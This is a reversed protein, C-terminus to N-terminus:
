VLRNTRFWIAIANSQDRVAPELLANKKKKKKRTESEGGGCKCQVAGEVIVAVHRSRRGRFSFGARELKISFGERTTQHVKRRKPRSRRTSEGGGQGDGTRDVERAEASGDMRGNGSVVCGVRVVVVSGFGMSM